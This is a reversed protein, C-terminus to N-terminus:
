ERTSEQAKVGDKEQSAGWPVWPFLPARVAKASTRHVQPSPLMLRLFFCLLFDLLLDMKKTKWLDM